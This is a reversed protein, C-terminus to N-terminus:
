EFLNETKTKLEEFKVVNNPSFNGPGAPTQIIANKLEEMFDTLIKKLDASDNKLSIKGAEVKFQAGNIEIIVSEIETYKVIATEKSDGDVELCLVKSGIAPKIIIKNDFNGDIANLRVDQLEPLEEREVTCTFGDIQKVTGTTAVLPRKGMKKVAQEFLESM